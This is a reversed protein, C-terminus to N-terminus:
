PNQSKESDLNKMKDRIKQKKINIEKSCSSCYVQNNTKKKTLVDCETCRIFKGEGIYNMYEYGLERFDTIKLVVDSENDIFNVKLNLNDNKNSFSILHMQELDNLYLYKDNRYKVTVRAVKYIEKIDTNVWGNNTESIINYLKAYCLMTFLLKRYKLSDMKSIQKIESETIDVSDIKQLHYKKGKKSIDEIINEWLAENYGKYNKRMFENLKENTRKEGLKEEQRYYKSLLFLTSTPKKGVEGKQIINEAYKKEDLIIAM